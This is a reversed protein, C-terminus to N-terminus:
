CVAEEHDVVRLKGPHGHYCRRCVGTLSPLYSIMPHCRVSRTAVTPCSHALLLIHSGTFAKISGRTRSSRAPTTRTQRRSSRATPVQPATARTVMSIRSPSAWALALRLLLLSLLSRGGFRRHSLSWRTSHSPIRVIWKRRGSGSGYKEQWQYPQAPAELNRYTSTM